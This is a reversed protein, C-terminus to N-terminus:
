HDCHNDTAILNGDLYNKVLNDPVDVSVGVLVEVGNDELIDRASQAMLLTTSVAITLIIKKIM